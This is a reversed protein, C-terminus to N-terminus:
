RQATEANIPFVFPRLQKTEDDFRHFAFRSVPKLVEIARAAHPLRRILGREELGVLLRQAHNNSRYRLHRAIEAISPSVGGTRAQHAEIFLMVRHQLPTIMM